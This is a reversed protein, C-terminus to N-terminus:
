RRAVGPTGWMSASLLENAAACDQGRARAIRAKTWECDLHTGSGGDNQAPLLGGWGVGGM